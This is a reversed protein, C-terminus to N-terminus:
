AQDKKTVCADLRGRAKGQKGESEGENLWIRVLGFWPFDRVVEDLWVLLELVMFLCGLEVDRHHKELIM